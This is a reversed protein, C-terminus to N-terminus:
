LWAVARAWGAVALGLRGAALALGEAAADSVSRVSFGTLAAPVPSDARGPPPM